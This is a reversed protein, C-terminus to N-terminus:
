YSVCLTGDRSPHWVDPPLPPGDVDAVAFRALLAHVFELPLHPAKPLLHLVGQAPGLTRASPRGQLPEPAGDGAEGPAGGRSVGPLAALIAWTGGLAGIRSM